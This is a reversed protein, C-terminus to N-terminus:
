YHLRARFSEFMEAVQEPDGIDASVYEYGSKDATRNEGIGTALLEVEPKDKLIYLIKQGLLGNSGTVIVKKLPGM